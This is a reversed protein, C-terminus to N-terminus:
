GKQPFNLCYNLFYVACAFDLECRAYNMSFATVSLDFKGRQVQGVLGSWFVDNGGKKKPPSGWNGLAELDAPRWLGFTFNLESALYNFVAAFPGRVDARDVPVVSTHGLGGVKELAKEKGDGITLYPVYQEALLEFREGFFNSRRLFWRPIDASYEFREEGQVLTGVLTEVQFNTLKETTAVSRVM